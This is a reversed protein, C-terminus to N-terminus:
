NNNKVLGKIEPVIKLTNSELYKSDKSLFILKFFKDEESYNKFNFYYGMDYNLPVGIAKKTGVTHFENGDRSSYVIFIGDQKLQEITWQLYITGSIERGTFSTFNATTERTLDITKGDNEISILLSPSAQASIRGTFGFSLFFLFFFIRKTKQINM